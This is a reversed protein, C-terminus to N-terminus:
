RGQASTVSLVGQRTVVGYSTKMDTGILGWSVDYSGTSASASVQFVRSFTGTGPPVDVRRDNSPDDIWTTTGAPRISAGLIIPVSSPGPNVIQYTLTVPRGQSVSNSLLGVDALRPTAGVAATAGSSSQTLAASAAGTTSAGSELDIYINGMLIHLAMGSSAPAVDFLLATNFSVGPPIQKGLSQLGNRELWLSMGVSEDTVQYTSPPSAVRLEFDWENIAYNQSGVNKLTLYVAVWSGLADLQAFQNGTNIKQGPKTVRTVTYSWNGSTVTTGVGPAPTSTPPVPTATPPIPTATPASATATRAAAAEMEATAAAVATATGSQARTEATATSAAERAEATATGVQATATGIQARAEATTTAAVVPVRATATASQARTEATATSAAHKDDSAQAVAPIANTAAGVLAALVLGGVILAAWGVFAKTKDNNGLWPVRARIGAPNCALVLTAALVLAGFALGFNLDGIAPFISLAFIAAALYGLIKAFV